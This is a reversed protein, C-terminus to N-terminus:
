VADGGGRRDYPIGQAWGHGNSGATMILIFLSDLFLSYRLLPIFLSSTFLLFYFLLPSSLCSILSSFLLSSLLFLSFFIGLWSLLCQHPHGQQPITSGKGAGEDHCESSGKIDWLLEKAM